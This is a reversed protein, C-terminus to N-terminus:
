RIPKFSLAAFEAHFQFEKCQKVRRQWQVLLKDCLADGHQLLRMKGCKAEVLLPLIHLTPCPGSSVYLARCTNWSSNVSLCRSFAPRRKTHRRKERKTTTIIHTSHQRSKTRAATWANACVIRAHMRERGYMLRNARRESM